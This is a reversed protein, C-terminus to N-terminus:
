NDIIKLNCFKLLLHKQGVKEFQVIAKKSSGSGEVRIIFGKGFHSHQVKSGSNYSELKKTQNNNPKTSHTSPNQNSHSKKIYRYVSNYPQKKHMDIPEQKELCNNDLEALFRSPECQIYQGWRFRNVAYSLFLRNEARTIAVYFLRREEELDSSSEISMMSPFLNEEMGIVFVYPFELGKSAHITMLTVKNYDIDKENDQDTMLAIEHMFDKLKKEETNNECFYKIGNILEQINEFRNVGEPTKDQKLQHYIGSNKVIEEALNYASKINSQNTFYDIMQKFEKLKNRTRSHINLEENEINSIIEWMSVEKKVAQISIKQLTTSGIGRAPYNIVRRLAEEDSQNISLRFYSLVDKVERRQYFSLGGYIKYPIGTRRFADEISRSQANTRYLIAFDKYNSKKSKLISLVTNAILRSEHNDSQAKCVVILNGKNNRTWVTKDFQKKNNKILSNAADVINGSSRYNQELKYEVYDPYDTKFDLINQINAGRFSYISQADDGVVCINENLAALKKIILYQIHNTDQYEDILIYTFKNQYKHLSEPHENLLKYTNLLLDDFDMASSQKCRQAYTTYVNSFENRKAINDAEVLEIHNPYDDPTIFNNKLSSIRNKLVSTKYIDKDLGKEKVINKILNKSDETDYITFDSPYNLKESEIRLIRAFVSHFTGMWLNYSNNEGSLNEIRKRMEKAAKNTFTLALINFPSIGKSILYAIRYTLVRTKGSGPGAIVMCPGDFHQAAKKQEANLDKLFDGM